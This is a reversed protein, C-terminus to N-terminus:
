VSVTFDLCSEYTQPKDTAIWYWQLACQGGEACTSALSDPITVNFDIDNDCPNKSNCPWYGWEILPEGIIKNAALDVVSINAYGPRHGAVLNVHFDVVDGAKYAQVNDTNDEYQYGRCLYADCKYSSDAKAMANEIPGAIDKELEKVVAAGCREEFAPGAKRPAPVDILAHSAVSSIGAAFAVLTAVKCFM